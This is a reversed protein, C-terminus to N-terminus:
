GVHPGKARQGLDLVEQGSCYSPRGREHHWGRQRPRLRCFFDEQCNWAFMSNASSHNSYWSADVGRTFDADNYWGTAIPWTTFEHKAHFVVHEVSSPFIVQYTPNVHVAVNAFCLMSDPVATRNVIRVACELFSKGPRLTYGVAWRMRQRVELEGVWVTKSGDTNTEVRYQVPLFTSARHHHPINWEIGGSMWAGILGIPAPKIVHQRYVFDYGNSKDVAEFLRGGIEPLIGIRVYENELYVIRYTKNSLTHTLTDYLPYPYIRGQAGQSNGGFYFMPNLEPPDAPYTPITINEERASAEAVSSCPTLIAFILLCCIRLLSVKM